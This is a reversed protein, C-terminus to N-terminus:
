PLLEGLAKFGSKVSRWAAVPWPIGFQKARRFADITVAIVAVAVAALGILALWAPLNTLEVVVLVVGGLGGAGAVVFGLGSRDDLMTGLSESSDFRELPLGLEMAIRQAEAETVPTWSARGDFGILKHIGTRVWGVRELRDIRDLAESSPCRFLSLPKGRRNSTVMYVPM